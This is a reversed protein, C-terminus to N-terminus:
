ARHPEQGALASGLAILRRGVGARARAVLGARPVGTAPAGDRGRGTRVERAVVYLDHIRSDVLFHNRDGVLPYAEHPRYPEHM